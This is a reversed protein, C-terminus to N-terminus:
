NYPGAGPGAGAAVVEDEEAALEADELEFWIITLRHCSSSIGKTQVMYKEAYTWTPGFPPMPKLGESM